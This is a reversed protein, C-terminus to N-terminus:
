RKAKVTLERTAANAAADTATASVSLKAKGGGRLGAKLKRRAKPSLKLALAQAVGAALTAAAPELALKVPKAGAGKSSRLTGSATASVSCAELPCSATVVVGRRRVVRQKGNATLDFDIETDAGGPDPVDLFSVAECDAAISDRGAQDAVVTDVESGCSVADAGGDRVDVSDPGIGTSITDAGGLGTFANAGDNATLVDAFTSGIVNEVEELSDNGAGGSAEGDILAVNVGAPATAYTVTDSGDGAVLLDAQGRGDLTDDGNNGQLENSSADGVLTDAAITGHVREIASLTDDGIGLGTATGGTLDVAVPSLHTEYTVLDDAGAGGDMRDDGASSIFADDGGFGHLEDDGGGGELQDNFGFRTPGDGGRLVDDGDGGFLDLPAATFAGGTEATGGRAELVDTSGQGDLLVREAGAITLDADPNPDGSQVNWNLGLTGLRWFDSAGGGFLNLRDSAGPGLNVSTEIESHLPVGNELPTGPSLRALDVINVTVDGGSPDSVFIATTNTVTPDDGAGPSCDVDGGPQQVFIKTRPPNPDVILTTIDGATGTSVSLINFTEDYNCSVAGHASPASLMVAAWAILAAGAPGRLRPATM